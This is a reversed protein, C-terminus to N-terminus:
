FFNILCKTVTMVVVMLSTIFIGFLAIIIILARGLISRPFYDGILVKFLFVFPAVM